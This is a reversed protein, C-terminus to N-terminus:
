PIEKVERALSPRLEGHLHPFLAGGRSPEFRLAPGLEAADFAVLLLDTQEAFHRRRTEAVQEGTSLHIFGDRLDAASGRFMGEAVAAQWEARSCIKYVLDGM